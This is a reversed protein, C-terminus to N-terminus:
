LLQQDVVFSLLDSNEFGVMEKSFQASELLTRVTVYIACCIVDERPLPTLARKSSRGEALEAM